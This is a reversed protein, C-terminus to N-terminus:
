LAQLAPDNIAEMAGRLKTELMAHAARSAASPEHLLNTRETPDGPLYYLEDAGEHALDRVLKWEPTRYARLNAGNQNWEAMQYQAFVDNNWDAPHEGRLLPVVSRGRVRDEPAPLGALDLLTRHWDLFTMSEYVETGPAIHGPWRFVAPARLSNDWLNPRHRKTEDKVVWFGNGKHWIGHHGMNYGHDSTFVIITNERLGLRDLLALLDGLNRDVSAVSALYERTLQDLQPRDLDPYDPEPVWPDLNAFPKWDETKMPHWTRWGHPSPGENNAHPAWHHLSLLFPERQHREIFDMAYGNLLDSTYGKVERAVGDIEVEPDRSTFGGVRFGTFEDYGFAQPLYRDAVGLHWKGVFGTAYGAEKFAKSWAPFSPDLGFDPYATPSLYETVGTETSYLGTLATARAPSCVPTNCFCNHFRAGDTALQDLHPTRADPHGGRGWAWGGQDDTMIFIVNPPRKAPAAAWGRHGWWAAAGAAAATQLFNRRTYGAM